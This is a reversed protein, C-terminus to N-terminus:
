AEAEIRRGRHRSRKWAAISLIAVCGAANSLFVSAMTRDEKNVLAYALAAHSVLL